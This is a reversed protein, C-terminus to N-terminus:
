KYRGQIIPKKLPFEYAVPYTASDLLHSMSDDTDDHASSKFYKILKKCKSSVTLTGDELKKNTANHRDRISQFKKARVEVGSDEIITFDTRGVPASSQRKKGTPDPYAFKIRNPYKEKITRIWKETNSNPMELEDIYHMRNGHKWFVVGAMPNVNFDLGICLEGGPDHIDKINDDTFNYYILLNSITVFEGNFYAQLMKSDYTAKLNDLYHKPLALNDSTKARVIHLGGNKMYRSKLSEPDKEDGEVLDYGYGGIGEPTGAMALESHKANPERIRATLQTVVEYKQLFPEDMGGAALNSGKLSDPDNGSGVLLTGRHGKYNITFYHDSGHYRYGIGRGDLLEKITPIITRKAMKYTPSVIMCPYPANYVSLAIMRKALTRSKGSGYGGVLVKYFASSTWWERHAPFMGGKTVIPFDGQIIEPDEKRWM